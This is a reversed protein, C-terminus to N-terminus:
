KDLSEMVQILLTNYKSAEEVDKAEEIKKLYVDALRNFLDQKGIAEPSMTESISEVKDMHPTDATKTHEKRHASRLRSQITYITGRRYSTADQTDKPSIGPFQEMLTAVVQTQSLDKKSRKMEAVFEKPTREGNKVKPKTEKVKTTM